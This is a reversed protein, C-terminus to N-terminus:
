LEQFLEIYQQYEFRRNRSQGTFERLIGSAVMRTVLENAAPYTTGIWSQVDNVSVIPHEYLRELVRQGNGAARGLRELIM